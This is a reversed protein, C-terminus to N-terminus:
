PVGLALLHLSLLTCLTSSCQQPQCCGGAFSSMLLCGSPKLVGESPCLAKGRWGRVMAAQGMAWQEAQCLFAGTPHYCLHSFDM